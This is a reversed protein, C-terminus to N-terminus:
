GDGPAPLICGVIKSRGFCHGLKGASTCYFGEPPLLIRVASWFMVDLFGASVITNYHNFYKVLRCSWTLVADFRELGFFKCPVVVNVLETPFLAQSHVM